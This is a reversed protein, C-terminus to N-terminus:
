FNIPSNKRWSRFSQLYDLDYDFPGIQYGAYEVNDLTVEYEQTPLIVKHVDHNQDKYTALMAMKIVRDGDRGSWDHVLLIKPSSPDAIYDMFRSIESAGSLHNSDDTLQIYKEAEGAILDKDQGHDNPTYLNSANLFFGKPDFATLYDIGRAQAWLLEELSKGRVEILPEIYGLVSVNIIQEPLPANQSELQIWLDELGSEGLSKTLYIIKNNPLEIKEFQVDMAGVSKILSFAFCGFLIVLTLTKM